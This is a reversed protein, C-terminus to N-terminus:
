SLSFLFSSGTFHRSSTLWSCARFVTVISSCGHKSTMAADICGHLCAFTIFRIVSMITSPANHM